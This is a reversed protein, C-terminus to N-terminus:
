RWKYCISSTTIKMSVCLCSDKTSTEQSSTMKRTFFSHNLISSQLPLAPAAVKLYCRHRHMKTSCWKLMSTCKEKCSNNTTSHSFCKYAEGAERTMKIQCWWTNNNISTLTYKTLTKCSSITCIIRTWTRFRTTQLHSWYRIIKFDTRLIFQNAFHQISVKGVFM